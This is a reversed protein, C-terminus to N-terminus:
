GMKHKALLEELRLEGLEVAGVIEEDISFLQLAELRKSLVDFSYSASGSLIAEATECVTRTERYVEASISKIRNQPIFVNLICKLSIPLFDMPVDDGVQPALCERMQCIAQESLLGRFKEAVQRLHRRSRCPVTGAAARTRCSCSCCTPQVAVARSPRVCCSSCRMEGGGGDGRAAAGPAAAALGTAPGLKAAAEAREHVLDGLLRKGAGGGAAAAAARRRAGPGGAAGRGTCGRLQEPRARPGGRLRAPPEAAGLRQGGHGCAALRAARRPAWRADEAHTARWPGAARAVLPQDCFGALPMGCEDLGGPAEDEDEEPPPGLDAPWAANPDASRCAAFFERFSGAHLVSKEPAHIGTVSSSPRAARM